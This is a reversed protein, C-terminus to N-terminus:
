TLFLPPYQRNNMIVDYEKSLKKLSLLDRVIETQTVNRNLKYGYERQMREIEQALPMEVSLQKFQKRGKVM